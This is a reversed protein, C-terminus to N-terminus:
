GALQIKIKKRYMEMAVYEQLYTNNQGYRIIIM